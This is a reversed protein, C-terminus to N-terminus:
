RRGTWDPWRGTRLRRAMVEIAAVYEGTVCTCHGATAVYTQRLLGENGRSRVVTEHAQQQAITSIQDGIGNLVIPTFAVGGM